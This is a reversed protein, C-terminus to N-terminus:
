PCAETAGLAELLGDPEDENGPVQVCIDSFDLLGYLALVDEM